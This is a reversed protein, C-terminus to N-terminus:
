TEATERVSLDGTFGDQSLLRFLGDLAWNLIGPLESQLKDGLSKDRQERPITTPFPVLLIRRYFAGNDEEANPLQNASFIHKATPRFHFLPKGKREAKIPDGTV